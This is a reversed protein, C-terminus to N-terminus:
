YACKRNDYFCILGGNGMKVNAKELFNFNKIMTRSPNATKKIELPYVKSNKTLILNIEEKEKNRFHTIDLLIVNNDYSKIIESVIFSELFNGSYESLQLEERSTFGSLFCALGSDMFVIKPLHTLRDIKNNHYAELLYVIRSSVLVSVWQKVTNSSVGIDNAIDSYNLTKGNRIAM